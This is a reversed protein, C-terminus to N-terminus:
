VTFYDDEQTQIIRENHGKTQAEEYVLQYINNSGHIKYRYKANIQHYRLPHTVKITRDSALESHNPATLSSLATSVM